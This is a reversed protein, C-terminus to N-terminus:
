RVREGSHVSCVPYVVNDSVTGSAMAYTTKHSHLRVQFAFSILAM